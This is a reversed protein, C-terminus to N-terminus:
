EKLIKMRQEEPRGGTTAKNNNLKISSLATQKRKKRWSKQTNGEEQKFWKEKGVRSSSAKERWCAQSSFKFGQLQLIGSHFLFITKKERLIPRFKQQM